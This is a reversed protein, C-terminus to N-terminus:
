LDKGLVRGSWVVEVRLVRARFTALAENNGTLSTGQGGVPGTTKSEGWENELVATRLTHDWALLLLM